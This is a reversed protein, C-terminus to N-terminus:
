VKPSLSTYMMNLACVGDSSPRRLGFPNIIFQIKKGSLYIYVYLTKNQM